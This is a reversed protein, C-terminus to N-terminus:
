CTVTSSSNEQLNFINVIMKFVLIFLLKGSNGLAEELGGVTWPLSGCDHRRGCFYAM